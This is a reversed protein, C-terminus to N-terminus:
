CTISFILTPIGDPPGSRDNMGRSKLKLLAERWSQTSERAGDEIVLFRKEGHENVGIVVRASQKKM